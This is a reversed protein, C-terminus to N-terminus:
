LIDINVGAMEQRVVKLKGQSVSRVNWTGIATNSKVADSKVEMVLETRLQANNESQSQRKMREPTIEGSKKLLM